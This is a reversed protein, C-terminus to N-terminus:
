RLERKLMLINALLLVHSRQLAVVEKAIDTDGQSSAAESNLRATAQGSLTFGLANRLAGVRSREGILFSLLGDVSDLRYYEEADFLGSRSASPLFLKKQNFEANLLTYGAEDYYQAIEADIADYGDAGLIGNARRALLERIRQLLEILSGLVSDQTEYYSVMDAGNGIEAALARAEGAIADFIVYSAPDDTLLM